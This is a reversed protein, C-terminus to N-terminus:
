SSPSTNPTRGQVIRQSPCPNRHVAKARVTDPTRGSTYLVRGRAARVDRRQQALLPDVHAPATPASSSPIPLVGGFGTARKTPDTTVNVSVVLMMAPVLPRRAVLRCLREISGIM